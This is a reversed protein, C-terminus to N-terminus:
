LASMFWFTFYSVTSDMSMYLSFRTGLWGWASLGRLACWLPNCEFPPPRPFTCEAASRMRRTSPLYEHRNHQWNPCQFLSFLGSPNRLDLPILELAEITPAFECAALQQVFDRTRCTATATDSVFFWPDSYYFCSSLALAQSQNWTLGTLRSSARQSWARPFFEERLSAPGTTSSPAGYLAM